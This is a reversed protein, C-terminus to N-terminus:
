FEVFEAILQEILKVTLPDTINGEEDMLRDISSIPLKQSYVEVKLYHLVGTLHDMGRLNGARGSSTGILLAKKGKFHKPLIADIFVKLIGPYSGNYEPLIFIFKDAPSIFKEVIPSLPSSDYEYIHPLLFEPPIDLLSFFDAKLARKELIKKCAIAFFNTKNDPRNTASIVTYREM